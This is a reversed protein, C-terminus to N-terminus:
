GVRCVSVTASPAGPHSETLAPCSGVTVQGNSSTFCIEFFAGPSLARMFECVFRAQGSGAAMRMKNASNAEDAGQIRLWCIVDEASTAEEKALQLSASIKYVGEVNVNVQSPSDLQVQVGSPPFDIADFTLVAPAYAHTAFFTTTSSFSGYTGVFSSGKEGQPGMPGMSGVEGQPGM